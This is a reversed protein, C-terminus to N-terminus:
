VTLTRIIQKSNIQNPEALFLVTHTNNTWELTEEMFELRGLIYKNNRTMCDREREKDLLLYRCSLSPSPSTIHTDNEVGNEKWSWQSQQAHTHTHTTTQLFTTSNGNQTSDFNSSLLILNLINSLQCFGFRNSVYQLM